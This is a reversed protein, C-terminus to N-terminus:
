LDDFGIFEESEEEELLNNKYLYKFGISRIMDKLKFPDCNEITGISYNGYELFSSGNM